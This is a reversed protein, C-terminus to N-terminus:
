SEGIAIAANATMVAERIKRIATTQDPGAPTCDVIIQAFLKAAYRIDNYREAQNQKPAHYTFVREIDPRFQLKERLQEQNAPRECDPNQIEHLKNEMQEM